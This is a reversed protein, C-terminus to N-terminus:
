MTNKSTSLLHFYNKNMTSICLHYNMEVKSTCLSVTIFIVFITLPNKEVYM